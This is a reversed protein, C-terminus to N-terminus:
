WLDESTLISSILENHIIQKAKKAIKYGEKRDVFQDDTTLFGQIVKGSKKFPLHKELDEFILMLTSICNHHRRGCVVFGKDINKPQQTHKKEDDVWIASCLIKEM